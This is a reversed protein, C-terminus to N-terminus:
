EDLIELGYKYVVSSDGYVQYWITLTAKSKEKYYEQGIIMDRQITISEEKGGFFPMYTLIVEKEESLEMSIITIPETEKKEECGALLIISFLLLFIRSARKM